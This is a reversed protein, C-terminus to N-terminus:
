PRSALVVTQTADWADLLSPGLKVLAITLLVSVFAFVATYEVLVAGRDDLLAVPRRPRSRAVHM